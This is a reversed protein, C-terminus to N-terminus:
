GEGRLRRLEAEAERLRAEIRHEREESERLRTELIERIKGELDVLRARAEATARVDALSRDQAEITRNQAEVIGSLNEVARSLEDVRTGVEAIRAEAEARAQVQEGYGGIPEGTEGDICVVRRDDVAMWLGLPEIWLRDRDDLALPTYGEPDHRFGHLKV